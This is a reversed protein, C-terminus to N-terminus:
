KKAENRSHVLLGAAVLVAALVVVATVVAITLQRIEAVLMPAHVSIKLKQTLPHHDINNQDIVNIGNSKHDGLLQGSYM